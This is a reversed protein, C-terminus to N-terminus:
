PVPPRDPIENEEHPRTYCPTENASLREIFAASGPIHIWDKLKLPPLGHKARAYDCRPKHTGDEFSAAFERCPSPRLSYISCTAGEGVKGELAVCRCHHKNGTGKMSLKFQTYDETLETPVALPSQEPDAERWYFAVRFVACCAGCQQCPHVSLAPDM